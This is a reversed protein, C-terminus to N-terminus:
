LKKLNQLMQCLYYLWNCSSFGENLRNAFTYYLAYCHINCKNKRNKQISVSINDHAGWSRLVVNEAVFLYALSNDIISKYLFYLFMFIGQYFIDFDEWNKIHKLHPNHSDSLHLLSFLSYILFAPTCVIVWYAHIFGLLSIAM